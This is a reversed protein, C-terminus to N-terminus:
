PENVFNEGPSKGFNWLEYLEGRLWGLIVIVGPM